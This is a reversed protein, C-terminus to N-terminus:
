QERYMMLAPKVVMELIDESTNLDYLNMKTMCGSFKVNGDEYKIKEVANSSPAIKYFNKEIDAMIQEIKEKKQDKRVFKELVGFYIIPEALDKDDLVIELYIIKPDQDFRTVTTSAQSDKGEKGPLFFVAFKKLLWLNVYNPELGSSRNYLIGYGSPRGIIFKEQDRTEYKLLGEVEKIFYSVELYLKQIFEFAIRTQRITDSKGM